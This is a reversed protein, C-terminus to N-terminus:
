SSVMEIENQCIMGVQENQANDNSINCQSDFLLFPAKLFCDEASCGRLYGLFLSQWNLFQCVTGNPDLLEFSLQHSLDKRSDTAWSTRGPDADRSRATIPLIAVGLPPM